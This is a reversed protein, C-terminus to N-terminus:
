ASTRIPGLPRKVIRARRQVVQEITVEFADHFNIPFTRLVAGIFRPSSESKGSIQRSLTSKEVGILRALATITGANRLEADVWEPRVRVTALETM